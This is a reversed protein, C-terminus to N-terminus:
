NILYWTLILLNIMVKNSLKTRKNKHMNLSHRLTQSCSICPLEDISPMEDYM